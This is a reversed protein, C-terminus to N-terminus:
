KRRRDRVQAVFKEAFGRREKMRLAEADRRLGQEAEAIRKPSDSRIEDFLAMFDDAFDGNELVDLPGKVFVNTMGASGDVAMPLYSEFFVSVRHKRVFAVHKEEPSGVIKYEPIEELLYRKAHKLGYHKLAIRRRFIYMCPAKTQLLGTLVFHESGPMFQSLLLDRSLTLVVCLHRFASHGTLKLVHQHLFLEEDESAAFHMKLPELLRRRERLRTGARHAMWVCAAAVAAVGAIELVIMEPCLDKQM